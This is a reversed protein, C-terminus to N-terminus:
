SDDRSLWGEKLGHCFIIDEIVEEILKRDLREVFLDPPIIYKGSLNEKAAEDHRRIREFFKFTWVNLAYTRGDPFIVQMNFAEDESDDAGTLEWHEFELWLDFNTDDM